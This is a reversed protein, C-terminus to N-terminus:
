KIGNLIKKFKKAYNTTLFPIAKNRLEKGIELRKIKDPIIQNLIRMLNKSDRAILKPLLIHNNAERNFSPMFLPYDDGLYERRALSDGLIVPVGCATAELLRRCGSYDWGLTWTSLIILDCASLAYPMENYNFNRRKVLPSAVINTQISSSAVLFKVNYKKILEPLIRLLAYPYSVKKCQGLHGIIFGRGLSKRIAQTTPHGQLPRFKEEITQYITKVNKYGNGWKVKPLWPPSNKSRIANAASECFTAIITANNFCYENYPAFLWMTPKDKPITIFCKYNARIYYFDYERKNMRTEIPELYDVLGYNKSKPNFLTGSYYVNAFKDLAILLSIENIFDGKIPTLTKATSYQCYINM